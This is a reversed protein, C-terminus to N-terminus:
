TVLTLLRTAINKRSPTVNNVNNTFACRKIKFYPLLAVDLCHQWVYRFQILSRRLLPLELYWFTASNSILDTVTCIINFKTTIIHVNNIANIIFVFETLYCLFYTIIIAAVDHRKKLYCYINPM